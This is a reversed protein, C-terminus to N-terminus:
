GTTCDWSWCEGKQKPCSFCCDHTSLWSKSGKVESCSVCPHFHAAETCTPFRPFITPGGPKIYNASSILSGSALVRGRLSSTPLSHNGNGRKPGPNQAQHKPKTNTSPLAQWPPWIAARWPSKPLTLLLQWRGNHLFDGSYSAGGIEKGVHWLM